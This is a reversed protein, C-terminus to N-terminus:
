KKEPAVPPPTFLIWQDFNRRFPSAHGPKKEFDCFLFDHKEQWATKCIKYFTEEDCFHSLEEAIAKLEHASRTAFLMLVTNNARVGKPIGGVSTRWSQANFIISLGISPTKDKFAGLHRHRYCLNALERAGRGITLSSALLDDLWFLLCPSRGNYKHKPPGQGYVIMEEASIHFMPTAPNNVKKVALEYLRKKKRYEVIEDREADVKAIIKSILNQDNLDSYTDELTLKDGLQELLVSNSDAAPGAYFIRDIVKLNQILGLTAVGKGVGRRGCVTCLMPLRNMLPPTECQFASGKPPNVALGTGVRSTQM